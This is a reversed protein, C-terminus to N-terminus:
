VCHSVRERCSARGIQPIDKHCNPCTKEPEGDDQQVPAATRGGEELQNRPKLFRLLAM